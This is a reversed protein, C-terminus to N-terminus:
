SFDKRGAAMLSSLKDRKVLDSTESCSQVSLVEDQVFMTVNELFNCMGSWIKQVVKLKCM